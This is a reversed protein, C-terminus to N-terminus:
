PARFPSIRHGRGCYATTRLVIRFPSPKEIMDGSFRLQAIMSTRPKLWDPRWSDSIRVSVMPTDRGFRRRSGCSGWLEWFPNGGTTTCLQYEHPGPRVWWRSQIGGCSGSGIGEGARGGYGLRRPGCQATLSALLPRVGLITRKTHDRAITLQHDCSRRLFIS